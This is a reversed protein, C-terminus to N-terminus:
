SSIGPRYRSHFHGILLVIAALVLHFFAPLPKAFWPMASLLTLGLVLRLLMVSFYVGGLFFLIRGTQRNPRMTGVAVRRILLVIVLVILLQAFLLAPYPLSSGQWRSFDPLWEVPYVHQIFQATVRSLFLGLLVSLGIIYRRVTVGIGANM